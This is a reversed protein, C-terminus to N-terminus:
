ISEFLFSVIWIQTIRCAEMFNSLNVKDKNLLGSGPNSLLCVLHLRLLCPNRRLEQM